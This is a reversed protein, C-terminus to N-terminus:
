GGRLLVYRTEIYHRVEDESMQLKFTDQPILFWLVSWTGEVASPRYAAIREMVTHGVWLEMYRDTSTVVNGKRWMHPVNELM